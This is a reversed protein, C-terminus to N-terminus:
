RIRPQPIVDDVERLVVNAQRPASNTSGDQYLSERSSELHVFDEKLQALVRRTEVTTTPVVDEREDFLPASLCLANNERITAAHCHLSWEHVCINAKQNTGAV